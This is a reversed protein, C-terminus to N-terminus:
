GTWTLFSVRIDLRPRDSYRKWLHGDTILSDDRFVIKSMADECLKILNSLDPKPTPRLQDTLAMEQRKRSWSAPITMWAVFKLEIPGDFPSRGDMARHALDRIMNQERRQKSPTFNSVFRGGDSTDVIRQGAREWAKPQGPVTIKILEGTVWPM